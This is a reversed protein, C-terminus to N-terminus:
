QANKEDRLENLSRGGTRVQSDASPSIWRIKKKLKNRKKREKKRKKEKNKKVKEIRKKENKKKSKHLCAKKSYHSLM